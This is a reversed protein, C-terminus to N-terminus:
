YPAFDPLENRVSALNPSGCWMDRALRVLAHEFYCGLYHDVHEPFDYYGGPTLTLEGCVPGRDTDYLDVRVFPFPLSRSVANALELLADVRDPPASTTSPEQGPKVIDVPRAKRDFWRYTPKPVNEKQLFLPSHGYFTYFKTDEIRGFRDSRPRLLEEVIWADETLRRQFRRMRTKIEEAGFVEGHKRTSWGSGHAYLIIVGYSDTANVPKVVVDRGRFQDGSLDDIKTSEIITEAM